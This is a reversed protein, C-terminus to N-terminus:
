CRVKEGYYTKAAQVPVPFFITNHALPSLSVRIGAGVRETACGNNNSSHFDILQLTAALGLDAHISGSLHAQKLKPFIWFPIEFIFFYRRGIYSRETSM